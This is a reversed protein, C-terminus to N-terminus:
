GRWVEWVRGVLAPGPRLTMQGVQWNCPTAEGTARVHQLARLTRLLEECNRGVPAAVVEAAQILGEPDIIFHSRLNMGSTEDYVGYARGVKGGLDSLLPFPVGGPVMKALEQEQWVKHVFHSDTSIALVEVEM